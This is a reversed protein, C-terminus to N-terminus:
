YNSIGGSHSLAALAKLAEKRTHDDKATSLMNLLEEVGGMEVIKM